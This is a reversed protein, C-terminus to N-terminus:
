DSDDAIPNNPIVYQRCKSNDEESLEELKMFDFGGLGFEFPYNSNADCIALPLSEIVTWYTTYFREIAMARKGYTLRQWFQDVEERFYM